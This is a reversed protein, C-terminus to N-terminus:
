ECTIEGLAAMPEDPLSPLACRHIPQGPVSALELASAGAGKIYALGRDAVQASLKGDASIMQLGAPLPEGAPDLLTALATKHEQVAFAVKVGSRDYPVAVVEEAELEATLPLDEARIRIRNEQYPNLRPLFLNGDADTQGVERNELYVTVDPYGPLAVMGFARGLRRTLGAEGDVYALSGAVNARVDAEGDVVTTDLQTTALRADYRFTADMATPDPGIETAVRYSAGLDSAGRGKRYQMGHRLENDRYDTRATMSQTQGLPMSYTATLAFEDDPEVTHLANLLFSGPGVSISYNGSMSRRHDGDWSEANVLLAGIRGLPHLSLGMSLQDVRRDPVDDEGFGIQRFNQDAYSTRAGVSFSAARYEYDLFTKYGSDLKGHLSGVVGGSVLGLSGLVMSTGMGLAQQDLGLEVRGEGTVTNTLGYRHSGILLPDGYAFSQSNYEDREFGLEYSYESLGARLVRSSVYYDQTILQERGLLDTVRLQLEGAGTVVPLNDIAFPGPPVDQSVRRTNNLFVEAVSPQAALGGISPLPFTVFNPDTAFNSAIQIGGFRVPRGLAGGATLSDGLRLSARESPFDRTFTTDLRVVEPAATVDGLRFNSVLVGFDEFVGTEFLADLQERVGTGTLFLLDYDVFGGLGAQPPLTSRRSQAFESGDFQESPLTLELTLSADDFKEQLQPLAALPYFPEGNFTLIRDENLKVRWARLDAVRAAWQGDPGRIVLAGESVRQGNLVVSLLWERWEDTELLPLELPDRRRVPGAAAPKIMTGSISAFPAHEASAQKIEALPPLLLDDEQALVIQQAQVSEVSKVLTLGLLDDVQGATSPKPLDRRGLPLRVPLPAVLPPSVLALKRPPQRKPFSVGIFQLVGPPRDLEMYDPQLPGLPLYFDNLMRVPITRPLDPPLRETLDSMRLMLGHEQSDILLAAKALVQGAARVEVLREREGNLAAQLSPWFAIFALAAWVRVSRGRSRQRLRAM